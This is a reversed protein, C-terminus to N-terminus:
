LAQGDDQNEEGEAQGNTLDGGAFNNTGGNEVDQEVETTETLYEDYSEGCSFMAVVGVIAFTEIILALILIKIIQSLRSIAGEFVAASVTDM